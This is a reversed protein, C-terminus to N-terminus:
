LVRSSQEHGIKDLVAMVRQRLYESAIFQRTWQRRIMEFSLGEKRLVEKL